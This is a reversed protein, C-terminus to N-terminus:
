KLNKKKEWDKFRDSVPQGTENTCHEPNLVLKIPIDLEYKKFIYIQKVIKINLGM